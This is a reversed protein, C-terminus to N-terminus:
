RQKFTISSYVENEEDPVEPAAAAYFGAVEDEEIQFLLFLSRSILVLPRLWLSRGKENGLPAAGIGV